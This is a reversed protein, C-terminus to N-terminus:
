KFVRAMIMLTFVMCYAIILISVQKLVGLDFSYEQM